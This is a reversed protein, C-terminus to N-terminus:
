LAGVLFGFSPGFVYGACLVLFFIPSFGGIGVILALRLAADIAALAALLAIARADLQRMGAEVVLLGAVAGVMLAWAPTNAPLESGIFPWGFLALGVLSVVGVPLANRM